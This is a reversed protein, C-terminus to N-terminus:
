HVEAGTHTVIPQKSKRNQSTVTNLEKAWKENRKGINKKINQTRQQPHFCVHEHTHTYSHTHTHTHM